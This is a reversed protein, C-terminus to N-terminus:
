DMSRASRKVALAAAQEISVERGNFPIGYQALLKKCEEEGSGPIRFV